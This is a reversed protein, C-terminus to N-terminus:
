QAAPLRAAKAASLRCFIPYRFTKEKFPPREAQSSAPPKTSVCRTTAWFLAFRIPSMAYLLLTPCPSTPCPEQYPSAGDSGPSEPRGKRWRVGCFDITSATSAPGRKERSIRFDETTEPGGDQCAGEIGLRPRLFVVLLIAIVLVLRPPLTPHCPLAFDGARVSGGLASGSRGKRAEVLVSVAM